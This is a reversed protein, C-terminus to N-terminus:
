GCILSVGDRGIECWVHRMEFNGSFTVVAMTISNDRNDKSVVLGYKWYSALAHSSSWRLLQGRKTIKKM